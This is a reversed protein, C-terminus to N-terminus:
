NSLDIIIAGTQGSKISLPKARIPVGSTNTYLSELNNNERWKQDWEMTPKKHDDSSEYEVLYQQIIDKPNKTTRVDICNEAAIGSFTSKSDRLCEGKSRHTTDAVIHVHFGNGLSDLSTGKQEFSLTYEKFFSRQSFKRVKEYFTEFDCKSTDPRITIMYWNNTQLGTKEVYIEHLIKAEEVWDGFDRWQVRKTTEIMQEIMEDNMGSSRLQTRLKDRAKCNARAQAFILQSM